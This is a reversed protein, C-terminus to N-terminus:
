PDYHLISIKPLSSKSISVFFMQDYEANERFTTIGLEKLIMAITNSHEICVVTKGSSESRTLISALQRSHQAADDIQLTTVPVGTTDSLPRATLQNRQWQTAYIAAIDLDALMKALLAARQYGQASLPM